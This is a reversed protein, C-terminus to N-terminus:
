VGVCMSVAIYIYIIPNADSEWVCLYQLIYIIPNADSEWVCLYQLIYIYSLIPM